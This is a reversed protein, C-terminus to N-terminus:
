SSQHQGSMNVPSYVVPHVQRDTRHLYRAQRHSSDHDVPNGRYIKTPQSGRGGGDPGDVEGAAQTTECTGAWRGRPRSPNSLVQGRNNCEHTLSNSQGSMKNMYEDSKRMTELSWKSWHERNWLGTIKLILGVLMNKIRQSVPATLTPM